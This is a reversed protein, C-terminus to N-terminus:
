MPWLIIFCWENIWHILNPSYLLYEALAQPYLLSLVHDWPARIRTSLPLFKFSYPRPIHSPSATSFFFYAPSPSPAQNIYRWPLRLHLSLKPCVGSPSLSRPTSMGPLLTSWADQFATGRLCLFVWFRGGESRGSGRGGWTGRRTISTCGPILPEAFSNRIANCTHPQPM